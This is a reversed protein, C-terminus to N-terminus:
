IEVVGELIDSLPARRLRQDIPDPETPPFVVWSEARESQKSGDGGFSVEYVGMAESLRAALWRVERPSMLSPVGTLYVGEAGVSVIPGPGPRADSHWHGDADDDERWWKPESRGRVVMHAARTSYKDDPTQEATTV